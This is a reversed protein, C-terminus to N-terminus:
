YSVLLGGEGGGKQKPGQGHGLYTVREALSRARSRIFTGARKEQTSSAEAQIDVGFLKLLTGFNRSLKSSSTRLTAETYLCVLGPEKMLLNM